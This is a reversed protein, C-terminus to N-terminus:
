KWLMSRDSSNERIWGVVEWIEIPLELVKRSEVKQKNYRFMKSQNCVCICVCVARHSSDDWIVSDSLISYQHNRALKSLRVWDWEWEWECEWKFCSVWITLDEHPMLVVQHETARRRCWLWNSYLPLSEDHTGTHTCTSPSCTDSTCRTSHRVRSRSRDIQARRVKAFVVLNEKKREGFM